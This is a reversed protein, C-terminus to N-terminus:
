DKKAKEIMKMIQETVEEAIKESTKGKRNIVIVSSDIPTEDDDDDCANSQAEELSKIARDCREDLLQKYKKIGEIASEYNEECESSAIIAKTINRLARSVAIGAGVLVESMTGGLITSGNGKGDDYYLVIHEFGADEIQAIMDQVLKDVKKITAKNM